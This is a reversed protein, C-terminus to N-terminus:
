RDFSFYYAKQKSTDYWLYWYSEHAGKKSFPKLNEIKLSDWWPFNQWIGSGDNDDIVGRKLKLNSVIKSITATDCNFSFQYSHDIGMEDAYCYINKEDPSPYFMFFESFRKKNFKTDPHYPDFHSIVKDSLESESEAIKKQTKAEIDHAKRKIRNCSVSIMCFALSM